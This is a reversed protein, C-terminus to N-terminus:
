RGGAHPDSLSRCPRSRAPAAGADGDGGATDRGAASAVVPGASRLGGPGASRISRAAPSAPPRDRSTSKSIAHANGRNQDRAESAASLVPTNSSLPQGNRGAAEALLETLRALAAFAVHPDRAIRMPLCRARDFMWAPLELWRERSGGELSCRLVTGDVKEVAEHVRVICGAWPHWPYLVEREDGVETSHANGRRTTCHRGVEYWGRPGPGLRTQLGTGVPGCDCHIRTILSPMWPAPDGAYHEM